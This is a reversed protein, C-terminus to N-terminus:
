VSKSNLFPYLATEGRVCDIGNAIDSARRTGTRLLRLADIEGPTFTGAEWLRQVDKPAPYGHQDLACGARAFKEALARSLVESDYGSGLPDTNSDIM